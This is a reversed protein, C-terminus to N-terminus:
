VTLFLVFPYRLTKGKGSQWVFTFDTELQLLEKEKQHHNNDKQWYCYYYDKGKENGKKSVSKALNLIQQNRERKCHERGAFFLAVFKRVFNATLPIIAPDRRTV